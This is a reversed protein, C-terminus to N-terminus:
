ASSIGQMLDSLFKEHDVVVRRHHGVIQMFTKEDDM